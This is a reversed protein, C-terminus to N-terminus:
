LHSLFAARPEVRLHQRLWPNRSRTTVCVEGSIGETTRVEQRGAKRGTGGAVFQPWKQAGLVPQDCVVLARM